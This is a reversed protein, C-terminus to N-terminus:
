PGPDKLMLYRLKGTKQQYSAAYYAYHSQGFYIDARGKGDIAGGTDQDLLFRSFPQYPIQTADEQEMDYTGTDVPRESEVYTILGKFGYLSSDTAITRGGTVPVTDSGVPSTTTRIYYIYNPNTSYIERHKSPNANLFKRQAANSANTIYGKDRMYKSIWQWRHNNSARYGLYFSSVSNNEEVRVYGGGQVHLLYLDFLNDTYGLELGKNKLKGQFDIEDRTFFQAQGNPKKYIPYKFAGTPRSKAEILHTHYGTFLSDNAEGYRPDGPQLDPAFVDFRNRIELNLKDFCLSLPTNTSCTNFNRVLQLFVQLSEKALRQPYRHGGMVIKGSLDRTQYRVLQRQIATELDRLNDDDSFVPIESASLKKLPFTYDRLPEFQAFSVSAAFALHLFLM